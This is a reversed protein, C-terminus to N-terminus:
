KHALQSAPEGVPAAPLYEALQAALRDRGTFGHNLRRPQGTTDIIFTTPVSLVGWHDAVAPRESANIEIIQLAEGLDAQVKALAPKQQTRCVACDDTTFYLVAASGPRFHELGPARTASARSLRYLQWKSWAWYALV